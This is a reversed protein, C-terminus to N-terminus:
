RHFSPSRGSAPSTPPGGHALESSIAASVIPGTAAPTADDMTTAVPLLQLRPPPCLQPGDPPPSPRLRTPSRERNTRARSSACPLSCHAACYADPPEQRPRACPTTSCPARGPATDQRSSCPPLPPAAGHAPHSRCPRIGRRWPPDCAQGGGGSSPLARHPPLHAPPQLSAPPQPSAATQPGVAPQTGAAAPSSLEWRSRRSQDGSGLDADAVCTCRHVCAAVAGEEGGDPSGVGVDVRAM